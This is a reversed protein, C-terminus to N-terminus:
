KGIFHLFKQIYEDWFHWNHDGPGEVYTIDLGATDAASLFNQNDQYLFDETGCAQYFRPYKEPTKIGNVLSILNCGNEELAEDSGFISRMEPYLQSDTDQAHGKIDLAGSMSCVAAYREPHRLGLKFAGYGGMSLGAAFNDERKESLRFTRRMIYPIEESIFDWYRQGSQMNTYFSRYVDPMVVAMGSNEVHKEINSSRCWSKHNDSLGHLLWLTPFGDKPPECEPLIVNVMVHHGLVGSRFCYELLAM